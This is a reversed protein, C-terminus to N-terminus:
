CALSMSFEPPNNGVSAPAQALAPLAAIAFVLSVAFTAPRKAHARITDTSLM